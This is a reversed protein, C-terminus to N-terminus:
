AQSDRWDQTNVKGQLSWSLPQGDPLVLRGDLRQGSAGGQLSVGLYSLSIPEADRPELVIQSDLVSLLGIQRLGEILRAPDFPAADARSPLGELRWRGDDGESLSLQLGELELVALRPQRARLSALVDPVLRVQDLRLASAGEGLQVDHAILLPAFRQWRGELSGIRLP